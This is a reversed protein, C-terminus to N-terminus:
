DNYAGMLDTPMLGGERTGCHGPLEVYYGNRRCTTDFKEGQCRTVGEANRHTENRRAFRSYRVGRHVLRFHRAADDTSRRAPRSSGDTPELEAIRATGDVEGEAGAFDEPGRSLVAGGPGAGRPQGQGGALATRGSAEGDGVVARASPQP